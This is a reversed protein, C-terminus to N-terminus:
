GDPHALVFLQGRLAQVALLGSTASRLARNPTYPKFMAQLYPPATGSAAGYTLCGTSHVEQFAPSPMAETEKTGKFLRQMTM